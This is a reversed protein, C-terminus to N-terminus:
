IDADRSQLLPYAVAIPLLSVVGVQRERKGRRPSRPLSADQHVVDNPEQSHRVTALDPTRVQGELQDQQLSCAGPGFRDEVFRRHIRTHDM